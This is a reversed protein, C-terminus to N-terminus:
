QFLNKSSEASIILQLFLHTSLVLFEIFSEVDLFCAHRFETDYIDYDTAGCSQLQLLGFFGSTCHFKGLLTICKM